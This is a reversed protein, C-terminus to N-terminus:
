VRERIAEEIELDEPPAPVVKPPRELLLLRLPRAITARLYNQYSLHDEMIMAHFGDFILLVSLFGDFILVIKFIRLCQNPEGTSM